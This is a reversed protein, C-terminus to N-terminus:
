SRFFDAIKQRMHAACEFDNTSKTIITTEAALIPSGTIMSKMLWDSLGRFGCVGYYDSCLKQLEPLIRVFNDIPINGNAVEDYGTDAILQAKIEAPRPPQVNIIENCRDQFTRNPDKVGELELGDESFNGAFFMLSKPHRHIVRGNGLTYKRTRDMINNLATIAGPNRPATVEDYFVICPHELKPILGEVFMLADKNGGEMADTFATVKEAVARLCDGETADEKMTGTIEYYSSVPDYTMDSAGPMSELLEPLSQYKAGSGSCNPAFYGDFFDGSLNSKLVDSYLPLGLGAAVTRVFTTKGGGPLGRLMYNCFPHATGLTRQITECVEVAQKGVVIERGIHVIHQRGDETLEDPTCIAYKGNFSESDIVEKAAVISAGSASAAMNSGTKFMKFAGVYETPVFTSGTTAKTQNMARINGEYATAVANQGKAEMDYAIDYMTACHTLRAEDDAANQLGVFNNNFENNTMYIPWSLIIFVRLPIDAKTKPKMGGKAGYLNSKSCAVAYDIGDCEMEAVYSVNNHGYAVSGPNNICAWIAQAFEPAMPLGMLPMGPVPTRGSYTSTANGSFLPLMWSPLGDIDTKKITKNSNTLM